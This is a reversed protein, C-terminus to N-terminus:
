NIEVWISEQFNSELSLFPKANLTKHTYICLGRGQKDINHFLDYDSFRLEATNLIFTQNKPKVETIGILMCKHSVVRAKFETFKNILSDANTYFCKLQKHTYNTNVTNKQNSLREQRVGRGKSTQIKCNKHGMTPRDGQVVM